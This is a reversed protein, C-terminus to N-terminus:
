KSSGLLVVLVVLVVLIFLWFCSGDLRYSETGCGDVTRSVPTGGSADIANEFYPIHVNGSPSPRSLQSLSTNSLILWLPKRTNSLQLPM